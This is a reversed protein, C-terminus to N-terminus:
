RREPASGGALGHGHYRRRGARHFAPLSFRLGARRHDGGGGELGALDLGLALSKTMDDRMLAEAAPSAFRILENPAKIFVALKRAQLLIEGTGIDSPTIPANEGVWYPQNARASGGGALHGIGSLQDLLGFLKPDDSRRTDLIGTLWQPTIQVTGTNGSSYYISGTPAGAHVVTPAVGAIITAASAPNASAVMAAM